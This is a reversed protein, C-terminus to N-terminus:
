RGLVSEIEDLAEPALEREAAPATGVIQDPRRAGVIAATMAPHRLVWAIALQALSVGLRGAIAKLAEVKDLCESLLPEQFMRDRHRHDKPDLNEVWERTVKGTLLGKQMPSYALVSIREGECYPILEAEIDRKLMSYPPQVSVLDPYERRVRRIQEVSFNSVGGYRVKGEKILEAITGWAEEIGEDPLPWHIQYLDIVDIGLRQLSAECEARISAAQLGHGDSGQDDWTRGCKTAVFPRVGLKKLAQGVVEECHGLGYVAATDIWNIGLDLAQRITDISQQDDQSGWGWQWDGGGMAWTGLGIVTLQEGTKGLERTKMAM